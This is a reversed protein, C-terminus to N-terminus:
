VQTPQRDRRNSRSRPARLGNTRRRIAASSFAVPDDAWGLGLVAIAAALYTPHFWSTRTKIFALQVAIWLVLMLGAAFVLDGGFRRDQQAALAAITMPLAVFALLALGAPAPSKSPCARM